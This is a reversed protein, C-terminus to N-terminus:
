AARQGRTAAAGAPIWLTFTPGGGPPSHVTVDGDLARAVQRSIALGLGGGRGTGPKLRTFEEFIYEQKDPPIGPGTNAVDVALWPGPAPGGAAREEVRVTIRGGEPTYKVANSLLNGLIQRVRGPDTDVSPLGGAVEVRLEIRKAEAQPRYEEAMEAALRSVDTPRREISLQGAEARVLEVLEDILDVAAAVARRARAVADRQADALEGAVGEELLALQGAAAGLPNKVDHSFGRM